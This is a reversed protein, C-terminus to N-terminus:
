YKITKKLVKDMFLDPLRKFILHTMFSGTGMSYRAKPKKHTLAHKIARSVVIPDSAKKEAKTMLKNQIKDLLDGYLREVQPPYDNKAKLAVNLSKNWIPTKIQGPQLLSVKITSNSSLERRFGDAIAEMAHKSAGYPANIPITFVGSNSGTFIIRAEKVKRMLPMFKQTVRVQSTVNVELQTQLDAISIFELPGAKVIGANNILSFYEKPNYNSEISQLAAEISSESTVDIKIAKLNEGINNIREFDKDSRVGALVTFGNHSLYKAAEFGIGTSAGTILVLKM